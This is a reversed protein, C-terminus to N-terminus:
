LRTPLSRSFHRVDRGCLGLDLTYFQLGNTTRLQPANDPTLGIARMFRLTEAIYAATYLGLAMTGALWPGINFAVPFGFYFIFILVLLIFAVPLFM